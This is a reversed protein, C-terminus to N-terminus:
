YGKALLKGDATCTTTVVILLDDGMWDIAAEAKGNAGPNNEGWIELHDKRTLALVDAYEFRTLDAGINAIDARDTKALTEAQFTGIKSRLTLIGAADGGSWSDSTVEVLIVRATAGSTNGTLLDGERVEGPGGSTFAVQYYMSAQTGVTWDFSAIHALDCDETTSGSNALQKIGERGLSGSYIEHVLNAGGTIGVARFRLSNWNPDVTVVSIHEENAANAAILAILEQYTFEAGSLANTQTDASKESDIIRWADQLTYLHEPNIIDGAKNAISAKM